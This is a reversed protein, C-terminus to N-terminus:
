GCVKFMELLEEKSMELRVFPQKEKVIGAGSSHTSSTLTQPPSRDDRWSCTTTTGTRLQLDTASAAGTTGRWPRGWSIPVQTGSCRSAQSLSPLSPTHMPPLPLPLPPPTFSLPPLPLTCLPLHLPLPSPLTCLLHSSSTPHPLTRFVFVSGSPWLM